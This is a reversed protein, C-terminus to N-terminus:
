PCAAICPFGWECFVKHCVERLPNWHCFKLTSDLKAGASRFGYGDGLDFVYKLVKEYSFRLSRISSSAGADSSFAGARKGLTSTTKCRIYRLSVPAGLM